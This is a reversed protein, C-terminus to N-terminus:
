ARRYTNTYAPMEPEGAPINLMTIEFSNEDKVTLITRWGWPPGSPAAYSTLVDVEGPKPANGKSVMFRDGTHFSDRWVGEAEGSQGHTAVLLIGEQTNGEFAWTYAISVYGVKSSVEVTATSESTATPAPDESLWLKSTGQWRGVLQEFGAPISM